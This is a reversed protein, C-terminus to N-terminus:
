KNSILIILAYIIIGNLFLTRLKYLFDITQPKLRKRRIESQIFNDWNNTYRIKEKCVWDLGHILTMITKYIQRIIIMTAISGALYTNILNIM